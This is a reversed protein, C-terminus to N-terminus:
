ERNSVDFYPRAVDFSYGADTYAKKLRELHEDDWYIGIISGGSGPFSTPAGLERGLEIMEINDRGIAEDGLISRRIDFNRNMLKALREYDRQLLANRAEEAIEIWQRVADIVQRDGHEYRFRLSSHVRGSFSPSNTWALFTPPLLSADLTEYQGHGYREMLEKSFDMFVLGDYVQAVRDQLGATIELEEREVSLVINPLIPKPIHEETLNFFKMLARFLAVVIASSGGLGVQRPINTEYEVKFGIRPLRIGHERCYQNFRKCGAFLLRLGGYYGDREAIAELEDLSEFKTPDLKPHMVLEIANSESVRVRASFNTITCAIVKGFYGDSPNGAIAIRARAEGEAVIFAM